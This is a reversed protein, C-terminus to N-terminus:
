NSYHESSEYVEFKVFSTEDKIFNSFVQAVCAKLVQKFAGFNECKISEPFFHGIYYEISRYFVEDGDGTNKKFFTFNRDHFLHQFVTM